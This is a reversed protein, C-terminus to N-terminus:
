NVRAALKSSITKTLISLVFQRGLSFFHEEVLRFKSNLHKALTEKHLMEKIRDGRAADRMSSLFNTLRERDMKEEKSKALDPRYVTFLVRDEGTRKGKLRSWNCGPIACHTGPM